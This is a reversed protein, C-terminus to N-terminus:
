DGDVVNSHLDDFCAATPRSPPPPPPPQFYMEPTMQRSFDLRDQTAAMNTRPVASMSTLRTLKLWIVM